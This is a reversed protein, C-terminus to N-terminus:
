NFYLNIAEELLVATNHLCYHKWRTSKMVAVRAMLEARCAALTATRGSVREDWVFGLSTSILWAAAAAAILLGYDNIKKLGSIRDCSM